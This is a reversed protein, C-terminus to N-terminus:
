EKEVLKSLDLKEFKNNIDIKNNYKIKSIMQNM